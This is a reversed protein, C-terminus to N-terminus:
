LGQLEQEVKYRTPDNAPLLQLAKQLAKRAEGKAGVLKYNYGLNYHANANNPELKVAKQFMAIANDYDKIKLYVGGLQMYSEFHQPNLVIAKKYSDVAFPHANDVIGILLNYAEGLYFWTLYNEPDKETALKFDAIAGQLLERVQGSEQPTLTQKQAIQNASSFKVVGSEILEKAPNEVQQVKGSQKGSENLLKQLAGSSVSQYIASVVLFATVVAIVWGLVAVIVMWLVNAKREPPVASRAQKYLVVGYVLVYWGILVNTLFSFIMVVIGTGPEIQMILNPIFIALLIYVGIIALWRILIEGFHATVIATSRRLADVWRHDGIIVEYSAFLLFFWIVFGPLVFVFLAGFSLLFVLLGVLSLPIILGLSKRIIERFSIQGGFKDVILVMGIQFVSAIIISGLVFLLLAFGILWPNFSRLAQLYWQPNTASYNSILVTIISGFSLALTIGTFVVSVVISLVNWLFLWLISKTFVEWSEKFLTKISPLGSQARANDM